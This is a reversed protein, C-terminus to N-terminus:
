IIRFFRCAKFAIFIVWAAGLAIIIILRGRAIGRYKETELTKEAAIKKLDAIEGNKQSLQILKEAEYENFSQELRRQAERAQTLQQNLSASDAELSEARIRLKGAQTLWSQKEWESKVLYEEISRLETKPILYWPGPEGVRLVGAAFAFLLTCLLYFLFGKNAECM